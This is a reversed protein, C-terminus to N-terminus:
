PWWKWRPDEPPIQGKLYEVHGDVFAYLAGDAHRLEPYAGGGPTRPDVQDVNGNKEGLLITRSPAPVVSLRYKWQHFSGSMMFVNVGYSTARAVNPEFGPCIQVGAARARPAPGVTGEPINLLPAITVYWSPQGAATADAGALPLTGTKTEEAHLRMALAVQRLNSACQSQKAQARVRGVVPVLLSALVGIIAIVTLLEILTFGRRGRSAPDPTTSARNM